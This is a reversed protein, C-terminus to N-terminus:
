AGSISKIIQEIQAADRPNGKLYEGYKATADGVDGRERAIDGLLKYADRSGSRAASTLTSYAGDKDGSRYQAEGLKYLLSGTAPGLDVAKRYASVAGAWDGTRASADGMNVYDISRIEETKIQGTKGVTGADSSARVDKPKVPVSGAPVNSPLGSPPVPVAGPPVAGSTGPSVPLPPLSPPAATPDAPAPAVPTMGDKLQQNIKDRIEAADKKAPGQQVLTKPPEPLSHVYWWAAGGGIAVVAVLLGIYLAPGRSPAPAAPVPGAARKAAVRERQKIKLEDFPDRFSTSETTARRDEDGRRQGEAVPPPPASPPLQMAVTPTPPSAMEAAAAEARARHLREWTEVFFVDLDPIEGIPKWTKGDYSIVDAATVRGDSIYKRLTKIDSFDYILGLKIKVKWIAVGVKKFDLTAARAAFEGSVPAPASPPPPLYAVNREPSDELSVALTPNPRSLSGASIHQAQPPTARPPPLAGGIRTPGDDWGEPDDGPPPPASSVAPPVPATAPAPAQRTYVVFIHKCKPCTIKAGRGTIKSDDLKYKAQCSECTVIM